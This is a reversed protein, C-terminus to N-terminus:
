ILDNRYCSGPNEPVPQYHAKVTQNIEFTRYKEPHHESLVEGSIFWKRVTEDNTVCTM